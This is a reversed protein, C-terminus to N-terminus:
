DPEACPLNHLEKGTSANDQISMPRSFLWVRLGLNRAVNEVWIKICPQAPIKPVIFENTNHIVGYISSFNMSFELFKTYV